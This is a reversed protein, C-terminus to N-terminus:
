CTVVTSDPNYKVSAGNVFQIYEVNDICHESFGTLAASFKAGSGCGTVTLLLVTILIIFLTKM